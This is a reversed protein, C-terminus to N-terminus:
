FQDFCRGLINLKKIKKRQQIWKWKLHSFIWHMQYQCTLCSVGDDKELLGLWEICASTIFLPSFAVVSIASKRMQFSYSPANLWAVINAIIVVMRWQWCPLQCVFLRAYDITLKASFPSVDAYSCQISCVRPNGWCTCSKAPPLQLSHQLLWHLRTWSNMENMQVGDCHWQWLSVM